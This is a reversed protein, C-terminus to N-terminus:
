RLRHCREVAQDDHPHRRPTLPISRGSSRPASRTSMTRTATRSSTSRESRCRRLNPTSPLGRVWSATRTASRRTRVSMSSCRSMRQLRVESMVVSGAVPRLAVPRSIPLYAEVEEINEDAIEPPYLAGTPGSQAVGFRTAMAGLQAYADGLFEAFDAEAVRGRIALTLSHPEDRPHVPTHSAPREVGAQLDTVIRTVDALRQRMAVGHATLVRATVAPDRAQIVERVQDLPLDLARLRRIVAADTLQSSHYSRYGTQPDVSTPVLIGAEHYARLTKISLLSARSFAGIALLGDSM